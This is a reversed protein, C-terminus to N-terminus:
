QELTKKYEEKWEAVKKKNTERRQLVYDPLGANQEHVKYSEKAFDNGREADEFELEFLDSFSHIRLAITIALVHQLNLTVKKNNALENLSAYRIGTLDSLEMLSMGLNELINSLNCVIGVNGFENITENVVSNINLRQKM